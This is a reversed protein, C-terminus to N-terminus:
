EYVDKIVTEHPVHKDCHYRKQKYKHKIRKYKLNKQLEKGDREETTESLKTMNEGCEPCKL